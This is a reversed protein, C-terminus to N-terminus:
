RRGRPTLKCPEDTSSPGNAAIYAAAEAMAEVILQRAQALKVALSYFPANHLSDDVALLDRQEEVEDIVEGLSRVIENGAVKELAEWQAAERESPALEFWLTEGGDMNRAYIHAPRWNNPEREPAIALTSSDIWHVLWNRDAARGIRTSGIAFPEDTRVEISELDYDNNHPHIV